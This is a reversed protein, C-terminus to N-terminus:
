LNQQDLLHDIAIQYVPLLDCLSCTNYVAVNLMKLGVQSYALIYM